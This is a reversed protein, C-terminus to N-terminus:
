ILKVDLVAGYFQEYVEMLTTKTAIDEKKKDNRRFKVEAREVNTKRKFIRSANYNILNQPRPVM